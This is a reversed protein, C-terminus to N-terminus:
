ALFFLERFKKRSIEAPKIEDVYDRRRTRVELIREAFSRRMWDSRAM